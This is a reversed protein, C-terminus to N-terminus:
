LGLRQVVDPRNIGAAAVAILIEGPSPLPVPRETPRLVDPGGSEAIEIATMTSPLNM